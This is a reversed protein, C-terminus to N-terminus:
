RAALVGNRLAPIFQELFLQPPSKANGEGAVPGSVQIKYLQQTPWFRPYKAAEWHEGESWGYWVELSPLPNTPKRFQTMWLADEQDETISRAAPTSSPVTGTSSYCVEPVHVAMPGRPGYILLVGVEHGTEQHRYFRAMSGHCQLMEKEASSLPADRVVLWDGVTTPVDSLLSGQAVLDDQNSWRGDLEGQIVGTLLVFLTCAVLVTTRPAVKGTPDNSPSNM